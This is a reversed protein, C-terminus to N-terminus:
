MHAPPLHKLEINSDEIGTYLKYHLIFPFDPFRSYCNPKLTAQLPIKTQMAVKLANISLMYVINVPPFARESRAKKKGM